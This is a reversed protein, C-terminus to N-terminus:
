LVVEPQYALGDLDLANGDFRLPAPLSATKLLQSARRDTLDVERVELLEWTADLSIRDSRNLNQGPHYGCRVERGGEVDPTARGILVQDQKVAHRDEAREM